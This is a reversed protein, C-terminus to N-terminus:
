GWPQPTDGGVSHFSGPVRGDVVLQASCFCQTLDESAYMLVAGSREASNVGGLIRGQRESQM